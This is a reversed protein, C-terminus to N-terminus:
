TSAVPYSRILGPTLGALVVAQSLTAEEDHDREIPVAFRKRFTAVAALASAERSLVGYSTLLVGGPGLTKLSRRWSRLWAISSKRSSGGRHEGGGDGAGGRGGPDVAAM